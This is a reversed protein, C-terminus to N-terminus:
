KKAIDAIDAIVEEPRPKDGEHPITKWFLQAKPEPSKMGEAIAFKIDHRVADESIGKEKALKKIAKKAKEIDM